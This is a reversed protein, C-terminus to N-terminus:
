HGAAKSYEDKTEAKGAPRLRGVCGEIIRDFSNWATPPRQIDVNYDAQLWSRIDWKYVQFVVSVAMRELLANVGEKSHEVDFVM